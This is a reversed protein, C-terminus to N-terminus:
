KKGGKAHIRALKSGTNGIVAIKSFGAKLCKKAKTAEHDATTTACVECAIVVNGRRFILDIRAGDTSLLEEESITYHLSEAHNIIKRKIQEHLRQEFEPADQVTDAAPELKPEPGPANQLRFFGPL